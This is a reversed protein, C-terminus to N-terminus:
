REVEGGGSLKAGYAGARKALAVGYDLRDTSVGLEKRLDHNLSMLEGLRKLDKRHLAILGEKACSEKEFLIREVFETKKKYPDKVHAVMVGTSKKPGTNIIVIGIEQPFIETKVGGKNSYSICGGYYSTPVDIIGGSETRHVVRDADRSVEIVVNDDKIGSEQLLSVVLATSTASSSALGSERPIKSTITAELGEVNVGFEHAIRAVVVLHPLTVHIAFLDGRLCSEIGTRNSYCEYLM